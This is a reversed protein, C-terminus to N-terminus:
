NKENFDKGTLYFVTDMKVFQAVHIIDEKTVNLLRQIYEENTEQKHTIDRNYALAIMSSAEDNTKRLSNELMMKAIMIEEDQINGDQLDALQQQILDITKQYDNAEIGANVIMIGNFADYSSSVYYCLSNEERVVKFLRSQSFGGFIANFVTFAYHDQSTFDCQITYGINLKSQTLDQQEIIELVDKRDSEFTYASLYHLHHEPFRLYQDFIDVIREDIDGVVYIHKEDNQICKVFYQYLDYATIHEIEEEYGTSPVGLIHNHGMYEFLKDLSYSFKDDKNVQLREKLEKKKLSVIDEDFADHVVYPDFFLDSLLKIQKELLHEQNPLFLDNVFSTYINIIQSKGKTTINTSLKAGYNEDLYAAVEKTSPYKKTAAILVFTLLTRLTTTEKSLPSQLRLSITTTKFKNTPILHLTYGQMKYVTKMFGGKVIVIISM